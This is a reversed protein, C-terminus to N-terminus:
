LSASGMKNTNLWAQPIDKSRPTTQSGKHGHARLALIQKIRIEMKPTRLNERLSAKTKAKRMPTKHSVKLNAKTRITAM